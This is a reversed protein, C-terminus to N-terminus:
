FEKIVNYTPDHNLFNTDFHQTNLYNQGRLCIQDDKELWDDDLKYSDIEQKLHKMFIANQILTKNLNECENELENIEDNTILKLQARDTPLIVNEPIYLSKEVEMNVIRQLNSETSKLINKEIQNICSKINDNAQPKAKNM